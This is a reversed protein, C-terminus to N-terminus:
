RIRPGGSSPWAAAPARIPSRSARLGPPYGPRPPTGPRAARRRRPRAGRSPRAHGADRGRVGGGAPVGGRRVATGLVTRMGTGRPLGSLRHVAPAAAEVSEGDRHAGTLPHEPVTAVVLPVDVFVERALGAPSAQDAVGAVALDLAGARLASLM